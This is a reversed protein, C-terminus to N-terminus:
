RLRDLSRVLLEDKLIGRFALYDLVICVFPFAATMAPTFSFEKNAVFIFFALFAYYGVLLIMSFTLLRMQLARRRYLFIDILTLTTVTLLLAFLVWPSFDHGGTESIRLWLNYLDAVHEGQATCFYGLPMSLCVISLIASLLLYLTQIRQIM